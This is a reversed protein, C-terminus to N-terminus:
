KEFQYLWIIDSTGPEFHKIIIEIELYNQSISKVKSSLIVQLSSDIQNGSPNDIIESSEENFNINDGSISFNGTLEITFYENVECTSNNSRRRIYSGDQNLVLYNQEQCKDIEFWQGLLLEQDINNDDSSCSIFFTILIFIASVKLITKNYNM